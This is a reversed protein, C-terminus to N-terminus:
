RVRGERENVANKYVELAAMAGAVRRVGVGRLHLSLTRPVYNGLEEGLNTMVVWFPEPNPEDKAPPYCHRVVTLNLRTAAAIFEPDTM